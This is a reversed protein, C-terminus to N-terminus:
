RLLRSSGQVILDNTHEDAQTGQFAFAYRLLMAQSVMFDVDKSQLKM